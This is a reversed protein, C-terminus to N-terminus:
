VFNEVKGCASSFGHRHFNRFLRRTTLIEWLCINKWLNKWMAQPCIFEFMEVIFRSKWKEV